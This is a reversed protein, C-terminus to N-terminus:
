STVQIKFGSEQLISFGDEKLLNGTVLRTGGRILSGAGSWLGNALRWLSSTYSLSSTFSLGAM